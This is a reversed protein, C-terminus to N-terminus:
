VRGLLLMMSQFFLRWFNYLASRAKGESLLISSSSPTLQSLKQKEGLGAGGRLPNFLATDADDAAFSQVPVGFPSLCLPQPPFHLPPPLRRWFLRRWGFMFEMVEYLM